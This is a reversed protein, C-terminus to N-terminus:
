FVGAFSSASALRRRFLNLDYNHSLFIYSTVKVTKELVFSNELFCHSHSHFSDNRELESLLHRLVAKGLRFHRSPHLGTPGGQVTKQIGVINGHCQLCQLAGDLCQTTFQTDLDFEVVIRFDGSARNNSSTLHLFEGRCLAVDVNGNAFGNSDESLELFQALIFQSVNTSNRM